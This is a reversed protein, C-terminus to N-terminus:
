GLRGDRDCISRCYEKQKTEPLDAFAYIAAQIITNTRIRSSKNNRMIQTLRDQVDANLMVTKRISQKEPKM